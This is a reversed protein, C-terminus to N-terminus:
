SLGVGQSSSCCQLAKGGMMNDITGTGQCVFGLIEGFMKVMLFYCM